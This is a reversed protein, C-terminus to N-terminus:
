LEAFRCELEHLEEKLKTEEEVFTSKSKICMEKSSVLKMQIHSTTAQQLNLEAEKELLQESLNKIENQLDRTHRRNSEIKKQCNEIELRRNQVETTLRNLQYESQAHRRQLDTLAHFLKEIDSTNEAHSSKM